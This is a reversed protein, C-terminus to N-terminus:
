HFKEAWAIDQEVQQIQRKTADDMTEHPLVQNSKTYRAKRRKLTEADFVNDTTKPAAPRASRIVTTIERKKEQIERKRQRLDQQLNKQQEASAPTFDILDQTQLSLEALETKSKRYAEIRQAVEKEESSAGGFLRGVLPKKTQEFKIRELEQAQRAIELDLARLLGAVREIEAAAKIGWDKVEAFTSLKKAEDLLAAFLNDLKLNQPTDM